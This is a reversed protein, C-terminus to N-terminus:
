RLSADMTDFRQGPMLEVARPRGPCRDIGPDHDLRGVRSTSPWAKPEWKAGQGNRHARVTTAGVMAYGMDPEDSVADFMRKFVDAKVWDRFRKFVM